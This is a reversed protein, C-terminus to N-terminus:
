IFLYIISLCVMLGIEQKSFYKLPGKIYIKKSPFFPYYDATDLADLILHSLYAASFILGLKFNILMMSSSIFVFAWISHLINRQDGYPDRPDTVTKWFKKPNFLEGHKFYSISHDLDMALAGILATPYNGTIKGIIMGAIVHTPTTM